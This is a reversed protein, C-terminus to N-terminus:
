RRLAQLHDGDWAFTCSTGGSIAPRVGDYAQAFGNTFLQAGDLDGPLSQVTIQSCGGASALRVADDLIVDRVVSARRWASLREQQQACACVCLVALLLAFAGRGRRNAISTFGAGLFLAWGVCSLYLFRSGQLEPGVFLTGFAPLSAILCWLLAQLAVPKAPNETAVVVATSLAAVASWIAIAPHRHVRFATFPISLGGFVRSLHEKLVYRNLGPAASIPLHLRLRYFLYFAILGIAFLALWREVRSIADRRWSPARLVALLVPIAVATEKTLLAAAVLAISAAALAYSALRVARLYLLIASLVFATMLVDFIGATWVVPEVQSPWLAFVCGSLIASRVNLGVRVGLVTVLAANLAHLAVNVTHLEAGGGGLQLVLAWCALAVPRIFPWGGGLLQRQLAWERLVYDDSLFGVGVARCYLLLAVLAAALGGGISARTAARGEFRAASLMLITWLAAGVFLAAEIHHRKTGRAGVFYEVCLLAAYAGFVITAGRLIRLM